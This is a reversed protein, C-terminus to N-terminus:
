HDECAGTHAEHMSCNISRALHIEQESAQVVVRSLFAAAAAAIAAANDASFPFNAGHM